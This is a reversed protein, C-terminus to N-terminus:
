LMLLEVSDLRVNTVSCGGVVMLTDDGVTCTGHYARQQNMAPLPLWINLSPSLVCVMDSASDCDVTGGTMVLQSCLSSLQSFYTPADAVTPHSCDGVLPICEVSNSLTWHGDCGGGV